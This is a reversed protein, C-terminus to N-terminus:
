SITKTTGWSVLRAKAFRVLYLGSRPILWRVTSLWRAAMMIFVREFETGASTRVASVTADTDEAGDQDDNGDKQQEPPDSSFLRSTPAGAEPSTL